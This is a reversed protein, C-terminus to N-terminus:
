DCSLKVDIPPIAVPKANCSPQRGHSEGDTDIVNFMVRRNKAWANPNHNLDLPCVEGVGIAWLRSRAVGLGVLAEVLAQAHEQSLRANVEEPGREDTHVEVAIRTYSPHERLVRAVGRLLCCSDRSDFSVDRLVIEDDTMM